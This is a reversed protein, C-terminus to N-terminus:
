GLIVECIKDWSFKQKEIEVKKSFETERNHDYFDNLADAIETENKECVYGVIGNPVTESLGGVNTVLMPKNFHYAIQTVGSQTASHYTQVVMDCACFYKYVDQNPIFENHQIVHESLGLSQILEQYPKADEYYEGAIILKTKKNQLGSKAFAKLLLDLGKYQRIFGFFLLYRYSQDLKLLNIAETKSVIDGFNDYMPHPVYTAPKNPVIENLDKLVSQSMTIFEDM